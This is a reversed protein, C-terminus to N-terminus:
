ESSQLKPDEVPQQRAASTHSSMFRWLFLLVLITGTTFYLWQTWPATTDTGSKIGHFLILFFTIFSAYHLIRWAVPGIFKRIYCSFTVVLLVYFGIVGLADWLPRYPSASPIFLGGWDFKLYSDGLLSFIHLGILAMAVVATFQHLDAAQWRGLIRDLFRTKLGIGLFISVFLLVSAAMASSRSLYWYFHNIPQVQGESSQSQSQIVPVVPWQGQVNSTVSGDQRISFTMDLSMSNQQATLLIDGSGSTDFWGTVTGNTVPQQTKGLTFSGAVNVSQNGRNNSRLSVPNLAIELLWGTSDASETKLRLQSTQNGPIMAAQGQMFVTASSTNQPTDAFAIGGVVLMALIALFYAVLLRRWM